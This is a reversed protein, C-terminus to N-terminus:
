HLRLVWLNATVQECPQCGVGRVCKSVPGTVDQEGPQAAQQPNCHVGMGAGAQHPLLTGQPHPAQDLPICPRFAHWIRQKHSLQCQLLQQQSAELQQRLQQSTSAPVEATGLPQVNCPRGGARPGHSIARVEMGDHIVGSARRGAAASASQSSAAAIETPQLGRMAGSSTAQEPQQMMGASLSWPSAQLSPSRSADRPTSPPVTSSRSLPDPSSQSDDSDILLNWDEGAAHAKGGSPGAQAGNSPMVQGETRAGPGTAKPASWIRDHPAADVEPQSGKAHRTVLGTNNHSCGSGGTAAGAKPSSAAAQDTPSSLAADFHPSLMTHGQNSPLRLATPTSPSAHLQDPTLPPSDVDVCALQM